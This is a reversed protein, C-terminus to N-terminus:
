NGELFNAIRDSAQHIAEVGDLHGRGGNIKTHEIKTGDIKILEKTQIIADRPFILDDDSTILLVPADIRKLGDALSGGGTVFVQAAKVLYLFHNADMKAARAKGTDDLAAEIAYKCEVLCSAPDKHAEAWKRGFGSSNTWEWHQAHLTVLALATSLGAIPEQKGYYDGNSWNPDLLIPASWM